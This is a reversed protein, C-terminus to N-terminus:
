KKFVVFASCAITHQPGIVSYTYHVAKIRDVPRHLSHILDSLSKDRAEQLMLEKNLETPSYTYTRTFWGNTPNM